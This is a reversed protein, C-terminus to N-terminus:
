TTTVHHILPQPTPCNVPVDETQNGLGSHCLGKDGDGGVSGGDRIDGDYKNSIDIPNDSDVQYIVDSFKKDLSKTIDIGENCASECFRASGVGGDNGNNGSSGGCGGDSGGCCGNMCGMEDEVVVVVQEPPIASVDVQNEPEMATTAATPSVYVYVHNRDDASSSTGKNVCCMLHSLINDYPQLSRLPLPLWFWTRLSSPLFRPCRSQMVNVVVIFVAIIVIPIFISYMTIPGALSVSFVFLPVVCFTLLIYVIAFWRYEATVKGLEKALKIPIRLFPVPYWLLLGTLNFFLHVLAVQIAPRLSGSDSALAALLATTTTGLNSGLTLPYVREVSIMGLGVLPTLTSTFISSSQLLFTLAAGALIALYGTLWPVGPLDANLIRQVLSAVSGITFLFLKIKM